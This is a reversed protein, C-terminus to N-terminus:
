LRINISHMLNMYHLLSTGHLSMPITEITNCTYQGRLRTQVNKIIFSYKVANLQVIIDSHYHYLSYRSLPFYVPFDRTYLVLPQPCGTDLMAVLIQTGRLHYPFKGTM